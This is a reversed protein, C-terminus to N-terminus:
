SFNFTETGFENGTVADFYTIYNTVYTNDENSRTEKWYFAYYPKTEYNEYRSNLSNQPIPLYILQRDYVEVQADLIVSSFKNQILEQAKDADILTVEQFGDLSTDNETLFYLDLQEIGNKSYVVRAFSGPISYANGPGYDFGDGMYLPIGDIQFKINILYYDESPISDLQQVAYQFKEDNSEDSNEADAAAEETIKEKYFDVGEKKVAFFDKAWWENPNIGFLNKFQSQLVELTKERSEFSLSDDKSIYKEEGTNAYLSDCIVSYHSGTQSYFSLSTGNVISGTYKDSSYEIYSYGESSEETRQPNDDFLKLLQEETFFKTKQKYIKCKEPLSQEVIAQQSKDNELSTDGYNDELGSTQNSLWTDESTQSSALQDEVSISPGGGDVDACACMFTAVGILMIASISQKKVKM